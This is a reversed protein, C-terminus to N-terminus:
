LGHLPGTGWPRLCSVPWYDKPPLDSEKTGQTDLDCFSFGLAGFIFTLFLQNKQKRLPSLHSTSEHVKWVQCGRFGPLRHMQEQIGGQRGSGLYERKLVQREGSNVFRVHPTPQPQSIGSFCNLGKEVPAPLLGAMGVIGYIIISNSFLLILVIVHCLSASIM